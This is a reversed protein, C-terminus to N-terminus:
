KFDGIYENYNMHIKWYKFCEGIVDKHYEKYNKTDLM